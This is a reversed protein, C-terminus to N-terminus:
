VFTSVLHVTGTLVCARSKQYLLFTLEFKIKFSSHAILTHKHLLKALTLRRWWNLIPTSPAWMELMWPICKSSIFFLYRISTLETPAVIRSLSRSTTGAFIFQARSLLPAKDRRYNYSSLNHHGGSMPGETRVFINCENASNTRLEYIILKKINKIFNNEEIIFESPPPYENNLLDKRSNKSCFNRKKICM